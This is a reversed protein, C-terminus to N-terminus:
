FCEIFMTNVLYQLIFLKLYIINEMGMAIKIKSICQYKDDTFINNKYMYKIVKYMISDICSCVVDELCKCSEEEKRYLEIHYFLLYLCEIGSKKDMNYKEFICIILKLLCEKHEYYYKDDEIISKLMAIGEKCSFYWGEKGKEMNLNDLFFGGKSSHTISLLKVEWSDIEDLYSINNHM